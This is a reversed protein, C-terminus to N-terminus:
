FKGCNSDCLSIGSQKKIKDDCATSVGGDFFSRVAEIRTGAETIYSNWTEGKERAVHTLQDAEQNWDRYIHQLMDLHDGMPRIDTKDLTKQTEQVDDQVKSQQDEMEWEDLECDSELRGFGSNENSQGLCSGLDEAEKKRENQEEEKGGRRKNQIKEGGILSLGKM